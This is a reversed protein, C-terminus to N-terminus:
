ISLVCILTTIGLTLLITDRISSDQTRLLNYVKISTLKKRIKQKNFDIFGGEGKHETFINSGDEYVGCVNSNQFTNEILWQFAHCVINPDLIWKIDKPSQGRFKKKFM